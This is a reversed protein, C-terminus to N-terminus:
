QALGTLPRATAESSFEGAHYNLEGTKNNYAAVKFYYLTGNKLGSILINNALGADIPSPGQAADNGFLEGRVASYYVLYGTVSIGPSHRWHLSVTGDGAVATLNRPPLPPEGPLYVIRLEDLYPSSEGDASPYFDVAIQVYRGTIGTIPLGPTFVAWRSSNLLYPNDSTRIFFNMESDDSFRFRGNERFENYVSAGRISTSGGAADIRIVSSLNDGLDIAATEMRGGSVPYKQVSQRHVFASYIRLEDMLGSFREGLLFAGSSGIVPTYVESSERGTPTAYVISEARGDVLYEVMGTVADFRVLHHSWTGPIIPTNGSLEISKYSLGNGVAFFNDFSWTFRNRSSFCSVRQVSNGSSGLHYATWSLIREGNEMHLPYVWFEITFDGISNGPAFLASRSNPAISVPSSEFLVAGIGERAYTRDLSATGSAASVRYNGAADRFLGPESEDFSVSMDLATQSLRSYNGLVGYVTQYGAASIDAAASLMLVPNPRVARTETIGTRTEAIRWAASGGISITKEGVAFLSGSVFLFIYVTLIFILAKKM